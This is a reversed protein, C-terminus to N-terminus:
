NKQIFVEFHSQLIMNTTWNSLRTRSKTVGHVAAHWAERDKVMEWLTSLNMDVSDTIGELWRMRQGRRRKGETKGLILTRKILWSQADPPWLIPAEAETREIVIWPQNGKPKVTKIEKSDLPSVLTKELVATQFSWNKLAWHEETWTQQRNKKEKKKKAISKYSNGTYKPYYDRILCITQLNKKQETPQTKCEQNNGKSHRLTEHHLALQKHKSQNRTSKHKHKM